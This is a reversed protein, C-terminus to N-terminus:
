VSMGGDAMLMAGTTLRRTVVRIKAALHTPDRAYM